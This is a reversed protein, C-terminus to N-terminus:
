HFLLPKRFRTRLNSEQRPCRTHGLKLGLLGPSSPACSSRLRRHGPAGACQARAAVGCCALVFSGAWPLVRAPKRREVPRRAAQSRSRLRALARWGSSSRRRVMLDTTADSRARTSCAHWRRSATRRESSGATAVAPRDSGATSLCLRFWEIVLAADSRLQQAPLGRRKLRSELNKGASSYRDRWHGYVHEFSQHSRRLAHYLETLRGLALLM